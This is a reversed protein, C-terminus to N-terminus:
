YDGRLTGINQSAKRTDNWAAHIHCFGDGHEVMPRKCRTRKVLAICRAHDPIASPEPIDIRTQKM